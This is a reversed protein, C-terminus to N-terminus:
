EEDIEIGISKFNDKLPGFAAVASEYKKDMGPPVHRGAVVMAKNLIRVTESFCERLQKVHKEEDPHNELFDPKLFADIYMQTGGNVGADVIGSILLLIQQGNPTGSKTQECFNITNMETIVEMAKSKMTIIANEIPTIMRTQTKENQIPICRTLGPFSGDTFYITEETFAGAFENVYEKGKQPKGIRTRFVSVSEIKKFNGIFKPGNGGYDPIALVDDVEQQSTPECNTALIVMGNQPDLTEKEKDFEKQSQHANCGPFMLKLDKIFQNINKFGSMRYMMTKNRYFEKFGNGFFVVRYYYFFIHEAATATYIQSELTLLEDLLGMIRLKRDFIVREKCERIIDLAFDPVMADQVLKIAKVYLAFLIDRISRCVRKTPLQPDIIYKEDIGENLNAPQLKMFPINPKLQSDPPLDNPTVLRCWHVICLAAELMNSKSMAQLEALKCSFEPIFENIENKRCYDTLGLYSNVLLDQNAEIQEEKTINSTYYAFKYLDPCIDPDFLNMVREFGPEKRLTYIARMTPVTLGVPMLFLYIEMLDTLKNDSSSYLAYCTMLPLLIGGFQPLDGRKVEQMLQNIVTFDSVNPYIMEHLQGNSSCNHAEISLDLYSSLLDVKLKFKDDAMKKKLVKANERLYHAFPFLREQPGIEKSKMVEIILDNHEEVFVKPNTFAVTLILRILPTRHTLNEPIPHFFVDRLLPIFQVIFDDRVSFFLSALVVVVLEICHPLKAARNLEEAFLPKLIDRETKNLWCETTSLALMVRLKSKDIPVQKRDEPHYRIAKIFNVVYDTICKVDEGVFSCHIAAIIQAFYRLILQQKAFVLSKIQPPDDPNYESVIESLKQFIPTINEKYRDIMKNMKLDIVSAKFSTAVLRLIYPSVKILNRYEMTNTDQKTFEENIQGIILWFEGLSNNEKIIRPFDGEVFEDLLKIHAGYSPTVSILTFITRLCQFAQSSLASNNAIIFCFNKLLERVFKSWESLQINQWNSLTINLNNNNGNYDVLNYLTEDNTLNTSAFSLTYIIHGISQPAKEKGRPKEPNINFDSIKPFEDRVSFHYLKSTITSYNQPLCGNPGALKIVTYGSPKVSGDARQLEIALYLDELATNTKSLDIGFTECSRLNQIGKFSASIWAIQDFQHSEINEICPIFCQNRNDLLRIVIRTRKFKSKQEIEKITFYLISRKQTPLVTQPLFFPDIRTCHALSPFKEVLTDYTGQYASFKVEYSLMGVTKVQEKILDFHLNQIKDDSAIRSVAERVIPKEQSKQIITRSRCVPLEVLACSNCERCDDHGSKMPIIDYSYIALYMQDKVTSLDLQDILLEVKPNGKTFDAPDFKFSIPSSTFPSNKSQCVAFRFSTLKKLNKIEISLRVLTYSPYSYRVTAEQGQVFMERGWTTMTTPSATFSRLNLSVNLIKYIEDICSAVNRHHELFTEAKDPNSKMFDINSIMDFIVNFQKLREDDSISNHKAQIEEIIKSFAISAERLLLDEPKSLLINHHQGPGPYFAVHSKPFIGELGSFINKGHYWDKSKHYIEFQDGALMPIQKQGNALFPFKAIALGSEPEWTSM